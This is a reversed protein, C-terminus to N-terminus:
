TDEGALAERAIARCTVFSHGISRDYAITALADRLRQNEAVLADHAAIAEDYEDHPPLDDDHSGTRALILTHRVKDAHDSM